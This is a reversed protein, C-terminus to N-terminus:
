AVYTEYWIPYGVWRSHLTQSDHIADSVRSSTSCVNNLHWTMTVKCANVVTSVVLYFYWNSLIENGVPAPLMSNVLMNKQVIGYYIM